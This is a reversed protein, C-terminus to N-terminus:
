PPSPERVLDAQGGPAPCPESLWGRADCPDAERPWLPAQRSTHRGEIMAQRWPQRTTSSQQWRPSPPHIATQPGAAAPLHTAETRESPLQQLDPSYCSSTQGRAGHGLRWGSESSIQGGRADAVVAAKGQQRAERDHGTAERLSWDGRLARSQGIGISIPSAYPWPRPYRGPSSWSPSRPGRPHRGSLSRWRPLIGCWGRHHGEGVLALPQDPLPGAAPSRLGFPVIVEALRNM